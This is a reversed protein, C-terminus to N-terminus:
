VFLQMRDDFALFFSRMWPIKSDVLFFAMCIGNCLRM